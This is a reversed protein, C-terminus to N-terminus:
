RPPRGSAPVPGFRPRGWSQVLGVRRSLDLEATQIMREVVSPRFDTLLPWNPEERRPSISVVLLDPRSLRDVQQSREYLFGLIRPSSTVLEGPIRRWWRGPASDPPLPSSSGVILVADVSVTQAADVPVLNSYGGDILLQDGVKHAPFVPFPSGSAFVVRRFQERSVPQEDVCNVISTDAEGESRRDLPVRFRRWTADDGPRRVLSPCDGDDPAFLFYATRNKDLDNAPVILSATLRTSSMHNAREYARDFQGIALKMFQQAHGNGYLAPAIVFNWWVVALWAALLLRLSRRPVLDGNPHYASLYRTGDGITSLWRPRGSGLRRTARGLGLIALGVVASVGLLWLWFQVTLELFSLWGPRLTVVAFLVVYVLLIHTLALGVGTVFGRVDTLLYHPTSTYAWLTAGLLLLLAGVCVLLSNPQISRSPDVRNLWWEAPAAWKVLLCVAVTAAGAVTLGIGLLQWRSGIMQERSDDRIVCQDVFMAVIAFVAYFVGEIEPIHERAVEGNVYRILIPTLLLIPGMALMLRLRWMRRRSRTAPDATPEGPMFNRATLLIWLVLFVVLFTFYRPMDVFGFVDTSRLDRCPGDGGSCMKWLLESLAWPGNEALRAVFFGLLAGGSTGIVYDVPLAQSGPRPSTRSNRLRGESYLRELVRSQYAAKVGGGPLVLALRAIEARERHHQRLLEISEDVTFEFTRSGFSNESFLLSRFARPVDARSEPAFTKQLAEPLTVGPRRAAVGGPPNAFSLATARRIVLHDPSFDPLSSRAGPAGGPGPQRTPRGDDFFIATPRGSRISGDHGPDGFTFRTSAFFEQWFQDTLVKREAATTAASALLPRESLWRATEAVPVLFGFTSLHSPLVLEYPADSAGPRERCRRREGDVAATRLGDVQAQVAQCWIWDRAADFDRRPDSGDQWTKSVLHRSRPRSQVASPTSSVPGIELLDLKDRDHLLYLSLTPIVGADVLGKGLWDLIEYDTGTALHIQLDQEGSLKRLGGILADLVAAPQPDVLRRPVAVNLVQATPAGGNAGAAPEPGAVVVSLIGLVLRARTELRM